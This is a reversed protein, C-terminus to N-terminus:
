RWTCRTSMSSTCRWRSTGKDRARRYELEDHQLDQGTVGDCVEAYAARQWSVLGMLVVHPYELGKAEHVSFVLPTGFQAKARAKDEDRLVIVAHRASGRTATDIQRIAAERAQVLTVEGPESSTSQM